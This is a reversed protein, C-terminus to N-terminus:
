CNCKIRFERERGALSEGLVNHARHHALVTAMGGDRYLNYVETEWDRSAGNNWQFPLTEIHWDESEFKPARELAARLIGSQQEVAHPKGAPCGLPFDLFCARPPKVSQTAEWLVSMSLTPLGRAELGRAILGM